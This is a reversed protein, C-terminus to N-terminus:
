HVIPNFHSPCLLRAVSCNPNLPVIPLLPGVSIKACCHCHRVLVITEVLRINSVIFSQLDAGPVVRLSSFLTFHFDLKYVVCNDYTTHQLYSEILVSFFCFPSAFAKILDCTNAPSAFFHDEDTATNHRAAYLEDMCVRSSEEAHLMSVRLSRPYAMKKRTEGHDNSPTSRMGLDQM